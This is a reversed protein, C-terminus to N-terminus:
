GRVIITTFCEVCKEGDSNKINTQLVYFHMTGSKGSKEYHSNVYTEGQYTTDPMLDKLFRYRQEGHLVREISANLKQMALFEGERFATALTPPAPPRAPLQWAVADFFLSAQAAPVKLTFTATPETPHLQTMM